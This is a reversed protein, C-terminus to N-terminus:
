IKGAVMGIDYTGCCVGFDRESDYMHLHKVKLIGLIAAMKRKAVM